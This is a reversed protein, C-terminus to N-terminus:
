FLVVVCSKPANGLEFCLPCYVLGAPCQITHQQQAHTYLNISGTTGNLGTNLRTASTWRKSHGLSMSRIEILWSSSKRSCMSSIPKVTSRYIIRSANELPKQRSHNYAQSIMSRNNSVEQSKFLLTAYRVVKQLAGNNSAGCQNRMSFHFYRQLKNMSIDMLKLEDYVLGRRLSVALNNM